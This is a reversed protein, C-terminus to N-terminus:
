SYQAKIHSIGIIFRFLSMTSPVHHNMVKFPDLISQFIQKVEM